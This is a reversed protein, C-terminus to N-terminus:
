WTAIAARKWTNTATCVYIYDSDVAWDGSTGTSSASAPAAVFRKGDPEAHKKLAAPQIGTTSGTEHFRKLGKHRFSKIM